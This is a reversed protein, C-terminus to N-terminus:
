LRNRILNRIVFRAPHLHPYLDHSVPLIEGDIASALVEAALPAYALGRSGLGLLCFLGPIFSGPQDICVNANKSLRFFSEQLKAVDPLPGALPFYDPTTCRFGVKSSVVQEYNINQKYFISNIKDINDKDDQPNINQQNTKLNFSAGLHHLGNLGPSIYGDGSIVCRIKELNSNGSIHSVQGRIRNLPLHDLQLFNAADFANAVVLIPASDITSGHDSVVKWKDNEFEIKVINSNLSTTINEHKCLQQCLKIPTLWGSASVFLGGSQLAIGCISETDKQDIWKLFFSDFQTSLKQYHDLERANKPIHLIGTRSGCNGYLNLTRYFQDAYLQAALNFRSLPDTNPSLKTYVIGVHNSSAGQALEAAKDYLKINYGRHALARAAHCGALGGGIVIANKITSTQEQKATVYWANQFNVSIQPQRYVLTGILQERKKGFGKIKKCEFGAKTLSRRVHSSATFTSFTTSADSLQAMSKFVDETWMEPNKSPAFGDLYWADVAMKKGCFTPTLKSVKPGANSFTNFQNLGEVIDGFFLTLIVRGSDFLLRHSGSIPQPPYTDILQISYHNLEPFLKHSSILDAKTLPFKEVSIFHLRTQNSRHQQWHKWTNVFNLGTGFGTEGITFTGSYDNWRNILDNGQIFVYYSEAIGDERSFYIDNFHKSVPLGSEWRIIDQQNSM